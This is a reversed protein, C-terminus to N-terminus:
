IIGWLVFYFLFCKDSGVSVYIISNYILFFLHDEKSSFGLSNVCTTGPCPAWTGVGIAGGSCPSSQIVQKWLGSHPCVPPSSGPTVRYCLFRLLVVGALPCPRGWRHCTLRRPHPSPVAHHVASQRRPGGGLVERRCYLWLFMLCIGSLSMRGFLGSDGFSAFDWPVLPTHPVCTLLPQPSTLVSTTQHGPPARPCSPANM